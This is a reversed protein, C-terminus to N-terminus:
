LHAWSRARRTPDSLYEHEGPIWKIVENVKEAVGRRSKARGRGVASKQVGGKFHKRVQPSARVMEALTAKSEGAGALATTIGVAKDSKVAAVLEAMEASRNILGKELRPTSPRLTRGTILPWLAAAAAAVAALAGVVGAWSAARGPGQGVVVPILGTCATVAIVVVLRARDDAFQESGIRVM